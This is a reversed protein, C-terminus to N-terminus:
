MRVAARPHAVVWIGVDHVSPPERVLDRVKADQAGRDHSRATGPIGRQRSLRQAPSRALVQHLVPFGDGLIEEWPESSIEPLREEKGGFLRGNQAALRTRHTALRKSLTPHTLITM